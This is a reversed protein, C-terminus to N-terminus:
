IFLHLSSIRGASEPLHLVAVGRRPGIQVTASVYDGSGILKRWELGRVGAALEPLAVKTGFPVEITAGDALFAGAATADGSALAALFTSATAKGARGNGGLGRMFGVVGAVGQYRLMRPTLQFSTLIGNLSGMQQKLMAPLEWHAYLRRIKLAGGEEVLEYRLHMPVTVRVGTSMVSLIDLDRMVSMGCVVDNSVNFSLQNPAIFTEYFNDLQQRGDHPTSGVPDNVQGDSAFLGLWGAKDHAACLKPSRAVHTILQERDFSM